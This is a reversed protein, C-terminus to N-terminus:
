LRYGWLTISTNAVMAGGGDIIDIRSLLDTTNNWEGGGLALRISAPAETPGGIWVAQARAAATTKTVLISVSGKTSLTAGAENDIRISTAATRRLGDVTAGYANIFQTSYNGASDNNFRMLRTGGGGSQKDWMEILVARYVPPFQFSVSAAAGGLVSHGIVEPQGTLVSSIPLSLTGVSM